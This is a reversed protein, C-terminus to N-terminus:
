ESIYMERINNAVQPKYPEILRAVKEADQQVRRPYTSMQALEIIKQRVSGAKSGSIQAIVDALASQTGGFAAELPEDLLESLLIVQQGITLQGAKEEVEESAKVKAAEATESNVAVHHNDHIDFMPGAFNVTGMFKASAVRQEKKEQMKEM